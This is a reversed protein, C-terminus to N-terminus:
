PSKGFASACKRGTSRGVLIDKEKGQLTGKSGSWNADKTERKERLVADGSV